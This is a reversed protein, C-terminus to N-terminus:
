KNLFFSQLVFFAMTLLAGTIGFILKTHLSIREFLQTIKAVLGPQGNGYICIFMKDIAATIAKASTEIVITSKSISDVKDHIRALSENFEQRSIKEDM